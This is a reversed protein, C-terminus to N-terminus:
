FTVVNNTETPKKKEFDVVNDIEGNEDESPEDNEGFEVAPIGDRIANEGTLVVKQGIPNGDATLQLEGTQKDYDLDDAKLADMLISMEELAKIQADTKIIRQDIVTLADDPIINSWASIPVIAVPLAPEIKRVRQVPNGDANIDLFIFTLKIELEGAEKTFKTDVPLLYKLYGEYREKSLDLIESRYERSVPLMYELLVTCASMDYGNYEPRVLFWFTDFLKSRQVIRQKETCIMTNDDNILIVYM